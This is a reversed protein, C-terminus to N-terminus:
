KDPEPPEPAEPQATDAVRILVERYDRSAVKLYRELSARNDGCLKLVAHLVENREEPGIDASFGELLTWVEDAQEGFNGEVLALLDDPREAGTM